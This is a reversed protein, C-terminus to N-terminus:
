QLGLLFIPNHVHVASTMPSGPAFRVPELAPDLTACDSLRYGQGAGIEFAKEEDPLKLFFGWTNAKQADWDDGYFEALPEETALTEGFGFGWTISELVARIDRSGFVAEDVASCTSVGRSPKMTYAEFIVARSDTSWVQPERTANSADYRVECLEAFADDYFTFVLQSSVGEATGDGNSDSRYDRVDGLDLLGEFGMGVYQVDIVPDLPNTRSESYVINPWSSCQPMSRRMETVGFLNLTNRNVEVQQQTWRGFYLNVNSSNNLGLGELDVTFPPEDPLRWIRDIENSALRVYLEGEGIDVKRSADPWTWSFEVSSATPIEALRPLLPLGIGDEVKVTGWEGEFRVDYPSIENQDIRVAGARYVGYDTLFDHLFPIELWDRPENGVTITEGVWDYSTQGRRIVGDLDVFDGPREPLTTICVGKEVCWLGSNAGTLQDAFLGYMELYGQTGPRIAADRRVVVSGEHGRVQWPEPPTAPGTDPIGTEGTGEPQPPDPPRGDDGKCAAMCAFSLVIASPRLCRFLNSPRM